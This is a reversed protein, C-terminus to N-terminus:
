YKLSEGEISNVIGDVHIRLNNHDTETLEIGADLLTELDIGNSDKYTYVSKKM